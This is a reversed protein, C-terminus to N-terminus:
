RLVAFNSLDGLFVTMENWTDYKEIPRGKVITTVEFVEFGSLDGWLIYSMRKAGEEFSM